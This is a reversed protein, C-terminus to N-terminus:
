GTWSGDDTVMSADEDASPEGDGDEISTSDVTDVIPEADADQEITITIGTREACGALPLALLLVAGLQFLDLERDLDALVIELRLETSNALEQPM